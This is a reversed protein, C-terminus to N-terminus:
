QNGEYPDALDSDDDDPDEEPTWNNDPPTIPDDRDSRFKVQLRKEVGEKGLIALRESLLAIHDDMKILIGTVGNHLGLVLISLEDNITPNNDIVDRCINRATECMRRMRLAMDVSLGLNEKEM